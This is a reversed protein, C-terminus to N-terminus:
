VLMLEPQELCEHLASAFRVAPEGDLLCHDFTLSLPMMTRAVIDGKYIVPKEIPTSPNIIVANPLNLIPTSQCGPPALGATSTLTLTSGTMDEPSLENNRAQAVLSKMALDIAILGMSEAHRLVPVLLGSDYETSGPVAVAIGINLTDYIVLDDGQRCSNAIPVQKVAYCLAKLIFANVSVKTGFTAERGAIKTRFALLDTIDSEWVSSLQATSQLSAMMNDAIVQRIGKLPIRMKETTGIGNTANVNSHRQPKSSNVAQELAMLVDQKIIRGGPGSGSLLALNVQKDRAIKKAQPSAIIRKDPVGPQSDNRQASNISEAQNSTNPESGKNETSPPKTEAETVTPSCAGNLAALEEESECIQAILTEVKLLDGEQAIINIYGSAPSEIEQTVKDTELELIVQGKEIREGQKVLWQNITGENMAMTLQPLLYDVVM